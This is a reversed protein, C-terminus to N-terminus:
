IVAATSVSKNHLIPWKTWEASVRTKLPLSTLIFKTIYNAVCSIMPSLVTTWTKKSFQDESYSLNTHTHARAHKHTHSLSPSLSITLSKGLWSTMRIGTGNEEFLLPLKYAQSNHISCTSAIETTYISRIAMWQLIRRLQKLLCPIISTYHITRTLNADHV